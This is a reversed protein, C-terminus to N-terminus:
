SINRVIVNGNFVNVGEQVNEMLTALPIMSLGHGIVDIEERTTAEDPKPRGPSRPLAANKRFLGKIHHRRKYETWKMCRRVDPRQFFFAKRTVPRAIFIADLRRM